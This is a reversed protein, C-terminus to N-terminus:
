RAALLRTRAAKNIEAMRRAGWNALSRVELLDSRDRLAKQLPGATAKHHLRWRDHTDKLLFVPTPDGGIPNTTYIVLAIRTESRSDAVRINAGGVKLAGSIRGLQERLVPGDEMGLPLYLYAAARDLDGERLASVYADMVAGPEHLDRWYGGDAQDMGMWTACGPATLALLLLLILRAPM